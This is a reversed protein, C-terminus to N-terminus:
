VKPRKGHGSQKALQSKRKVAAVLNSLEAKENRTAKPTSILVQDNKSRKLALIEEMTKTKKFHPNTPDIHFQHDDILASFRPDQLDLKFEDQTELLAKQNKKKQKKSKAKEAKIVDKAVFHEKQDKQDLLLLELEAKEKEEQDKSKKEKKEKKKEKKPKDEKFGDGFAEQFFSDDLGHASDDTESDVHTLLVKKKKSKYNRPKERKANNANSLKSYLNTRGIRVLRV